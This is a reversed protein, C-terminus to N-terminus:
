VHITNKCKGLLVYIIDAQEYSHYAYQQGDNGQIYFDSVFPFVFLCLRSRFNSGGAPVLLNDLSTIYSYRSIYQQSTELSGHTQYCITHSNHHIRHVVQAIREGTYYGYYAGLEGLTRCILFM